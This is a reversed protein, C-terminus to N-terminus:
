KTLVWTLIDPSTLGGLGVLHHGTIHINIFGMLISIDAIFWLSFQTINVLKSPVAKFWHKIYKKQCMSQKLISAHTQTDLIPHGLFVNFPMCKLTRKFSCVHTTIQGHKTMKQGHGLLPTESVPGSVM